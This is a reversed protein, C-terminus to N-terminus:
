RHGAAGNEHRTRRAADAGRDGPAELGVAPVHVADIERVAVERGALSVARNDVRRELAEVAPEIGDDRVRPELM